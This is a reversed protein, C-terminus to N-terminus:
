HSGKRRLPHREPTASLPDEPWAHKPYRARLEKRVQPYTNAWFSALDDTVQQPRSNPALLHLLVTVRGGAIRPTETLGFLEQIRVALVPPQGVAYRLAIQSGSPVQLRQPAEREVAQRQAHTLKGQLLELWSAERLESFSRRGVCLWPLLQGLEAQDFPPLQLEPMWRSLCRIRVLYAGASSGEPPLVRELHKSAEAALAQSTRENDPLAAATEELVLNAFRVRRRAQMREEKPDFEVEIATTLQEAPLWARQIASAQRVLSESHAADVDVCVFLEAETLGSSPPLRVGRGGVMVGRRSGPERRRALRDAFAALLSRMVAEDASLEGAAEARQPFGPRRVEQHCLRLLQNRAQLVLRAAGRHLTGLSSSSQSQREYAELAEVRELVDSLTKHSYGSAQASPELSRVFPDREALLAAALAVRQTQGWVQGEVLLRGL